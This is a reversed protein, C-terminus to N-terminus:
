TFALEEMSFSDDEEKRNSQTGYLKNMDFGGGGDEYGYPNENQDTAIERVEGVVGLQCCVALDFKTRDEPKYHILDEIIRLHRYKWGNKVVDKQLLETSLIIFNTSAPVGESGANQNNRSTSAYTISPRKMVFDGFGWRHAMEIVANKQSEILSEAGYLVCAKLMEEHATEPNAPRFVYDAVFSQSFEPDCWFDYLKRVTIGASSRRTNFSTTGHSFPDYQVQYKIQNLPARFLKRDDDITVTINNAEKQTPLYSIHWHGEPDKIFEVKTKERNMWELRGIMCASVETCLRRRENLIKINFVADDNSVMFAEEITYPNKQVYAIWLLSDHLRSAREIDHFRKARVRDPRGYEDFFTCDIASTFFRVLGSPTRGLENRKNQDSNRWIKFFPEGGSDMEEVTTTMYIKGIMKSDRYVTDLNKSLRQSVDVLDPNTKGAEDQILLKLTASDYGLESSARFDIYSRLAKKRSNGQERKPFFSLKTKPEPSHNHIPIFFDPLTKYPEVIKNLFLDQADDDSKSQMGVRANFHTICEYYAICGARYSKGQGRKTCEALGYLADDHKVSEWFYFLDRDTERYSAYGTDMCWYTLFFYHTGTIYTPVGFCMFWYGHTIRDWEQTRFEEAFPNVYNPNFERYVRQKSSSEPDYGTQIIIEERRMEDWSIRYDAAYDAGSVILVEEPSFEPLEPKRWMQEAKPLAFGDITQVPPPAPITFSVGQIKINVSEPNVKIAKTM